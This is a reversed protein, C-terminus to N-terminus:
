VLLLLLSASSKSSQKWQYIGVMSLKTSTREMAAEASKVKRMKSREQWKQENEEYEEAESVQEDVAGTSGQENGISLNGTRSKSVNFEHKRREEIASSVTAPLFDKGRYFVIFERDRSLLNGGTWWQLLKYIYRVYELSFWPPYTNLHVVIISM